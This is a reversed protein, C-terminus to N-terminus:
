VSSISCPVWNRWGRIAEDRRHVVVRHIFETLRCHFDFIIRRFEGLGGSRVSQCYELSDPHVPGEKLIKDWQVTLEVSRVLSVWGRIMSDLVDM